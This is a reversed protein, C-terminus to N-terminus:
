SRDMDIIHKLDVEQDGYTNLRDDAEWGAPPSITTSVIEPGAPATALPPTYAIESSGSGFGNTMAISASSKM